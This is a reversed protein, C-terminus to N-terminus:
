IVCKGETFSSVLEWVNRGGFAEALTQPTAIKGSARKVYERIGSFFRGDGLYERLRSFLIMGKHYAINEYEYEGAFSSLPRNMCTNAEGKTQSYVSYFARYARKTRCLLEEASVGYSPTNEFFLLTSYEALGEDQWSEQVQNSGVRAYWWQHATEHAVVYSLEEEHLDDAIMVLGDSEMGGMFLGTEVVAYRTRPYEGFTRSFYALSEQAARLGLASPEKGFASYEVTVGETEAQETRLDQGVVLACDRANELSIQYVRKGGNEQVSGEGGYVCGYDNPLTLTLTYDACDSLFSDGLSDNAYELWGAEGRACLLPYFAHLNVGSESVGLRHNVQALKTSFSFSVAGREHPYIPDYLRAYLMSEDEGGVELRAGAGESLAIEGYSDGAYYASSFLAESVPPEKAGERYANPALLFPLYEVMSDGGNYVSVTAEGVLTQTQPLYELVMQYKTNEDKQGCASVGAVVPVLLAVSLLFAFKKM